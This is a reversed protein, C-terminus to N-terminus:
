ALGCKFIDNDFTADISKFPPIIIFDSNDSQVWAGNLLQNILILDAIVTEFAWGRQKADRKVEEEFQNQETIGTNIFVGRHYYSQWASMVEMLYDANDEGYKEIYENRKIALAEPSVPGMSYFAASDDKRELFDQSYWYTGPSRSFQELYPQRGGLLLSICDHVRPLVLQISRSQLGVTGNGCLGYGLLIAQYGRGEASNIQSQISSRLQDPRNHLGRELLQIDIVHASKAAAFYIPRAFTECAICLFRM